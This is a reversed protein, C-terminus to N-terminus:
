PQSTAFSASFSMPIRRAEPKLSNNSATRFFSHSAPSSAAPDPDPPSCCRSESPSCCCSESPSCCCSESDPDSLCCNPGSTSPSLFSIFFNTMSAPPIANNFHVQPPLNSQPHGECNSEPHRDDVDLEESPIRDPGKRRPVGFGSRRLVQDLLDPLDLPHFDANQRRKSSYLGQGPGGHIELIKLQIPGMRLDVQRTPAWDPSQLM